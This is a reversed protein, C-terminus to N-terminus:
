RGKTVAMCAVARAAAAFDPDYGTAAHYDFYTADRSDKRSSVQWGAATYRFHHEIHSAPALADLLRDLMAADFVQLWGHNRHAGFPVSLYLTGGPRLVRMLEAAVGLYADGSEERKSVDDTYFRTNDLGVHELTSLCVVWDFYADRFCTDRLDEYVYSTHRPVRPRHREPALTSIFVRKAQLAPQELIFDFNLVSGADLLRGPGHPLRSLLWPYEIIREDLRVGYGAPLVDPDFDGRTLVAAIRREKYVGYGTTFPKGGRVVYLGYKVAEVATM